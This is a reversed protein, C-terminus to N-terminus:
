GWALIFLVTFLTSIALQRLGIITPKVGVAPNFTGWVTEILQLAYPIWLRSPLVDAFGLALVVIFNFGSYLLARRGMEMRTKRQPKIKLRRQALRLFAYVISAASQFWVLVWFWWGPNPTYDGVGIWYAAPGALALTGSAIIDIAIQYREARKRVLFLHWAFVLLGPVALYFVYGFGLRYLQWVAGLAALSYISFWLRAAPLDQRSRRGAYAKMMMSVPQRLLFAALAANILYFGASNWRGAAFFGILMPSLLFVWSGHDNPVAINRHLYKASFSTKTM